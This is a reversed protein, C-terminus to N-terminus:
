RRLWQISKDIILIVFSTYLYAFFTNFFTQPIVFGFADMKEYTFSTIQIDTVFITFLYLIATNILLSFLGLTIINMPLSVINLIPKIFLNLLTLVVGGIVYPMYGQNIHVGPILKTLLFLIFAYVLVNRLLTKM